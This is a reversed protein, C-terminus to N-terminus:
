LLYFGFIDWLFRENSKLWELLISPPTDGGVIEWTGLAIMAFGDHWKGYCVLPSTGVPNIEISFEPENHIRIM